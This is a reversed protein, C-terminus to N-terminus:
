YYRQRPDGSVARARRSERKSHRQKPRPSCPLAALMAQVAQVDALRWLLAGKM